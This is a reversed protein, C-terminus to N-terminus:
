PVVNVMVSFSRRLISFNHCDIKRLAMFVLPFHANQRKKEFLHTLVGIPTPIKWERCVDEYMDGINILQGWLTRIQMFVHMEKM